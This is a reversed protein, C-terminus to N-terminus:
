ANATEPVTTDPDYLAQALYRREMEELDYALFYPKLLPYFERMKEPVAFVIDCGRDDYISLICEHKFSVFGIGHSGVGEIQRRIIDMYDFHKDDAFCVIRNRRNKGYDPDGPEDYTPLDRVAVHRYCVQYHSLFLLQEVEMRIRNEIISEADEGYLAREAECSDSYDNVWYNFFVADAGEPFLLKYIELARSEATAMYEEDSDGMGLECRLAYPHNYFYPQLYPFDRCCILKEIQSKNVM